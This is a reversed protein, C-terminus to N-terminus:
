RWSLLATLQENALESDSVPRNSLGLEPAGGYCHLKGDPRLQILGASILNSDYFQYHALSASFVTMTMGNAPDDRVVYKCENHKSAMKSHGELTISEHTQKTARVRSLSFRAL